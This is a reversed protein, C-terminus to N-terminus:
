GPCTRSTNFWDYFKRVMAYANTHGARGADLLGRTWFVRDYNKRESNGGEELAISDKEPYYNHYGDARQRAQIRAVITDVIHRLDAREGWRLANATGQLLRGENSAPLWAFWGPGDCYTESAFCHNLYHINRELADRFLGAQLSVGTTPSHAAYAAPRWTDPSTNPKTGSAIRAYEARMAQTIEEVYNVPEVAEFYDITQYCDTANPNRDKRVVMRLTHFPGTTSLGTKEFLVVRSIWTPHYADVTEQLIGDLYVDALGHDRNKSGVWRVASGRFRFECTNYQVNSIQYDRNHFGDQDTERQWDGFCLVAGDNDNCIAAGPLPTPSPLPTPAPPVQTTAVAIKDCEVWYDTAAPDKQRTVVVKIAHNGLPLPGSDFVPATPQNTPSYTDITAKLVGDLYVDAIGRSNSKTSFWQLRTCAPISYQFFDQAVTSSKATGHHWGAGPDFTTWGTGSFTISRHRDDVSRVRTTLPSNEARAPSPAVFWAAAGLWLIIAHRPIMMKGPSRNSLGMVALAAILIVVGIIMATHAQRSTGRWEGTLAGALNGFLISCVLMMPFGVYAGYDGLLYAAIGYVAIGGPWTLGMFTVWFWHRGDGARIQRFTGRCVMLWAAYLFNVLYNGTFVLAWIAFGKAWLTAGAKEASAAIDAGSIFSFNVLASLAGSLVCFLLGVSFPTRPKALPAGAGGAPPSVRATALDQEKIKGAGAIFVIGFVMIVVAAILTLGGATAVKDRQFLALPLLSGFVNILGMLLSVGLAMGVAAIAKGWFIGGLGWGVGFLFTLFLKAPPIEAYVEGLNPVTLLALPWPVVVLAIFSGLGWNNEWQWKPTRTVGLSFLGEMAGAVLVLLLGILITTSM